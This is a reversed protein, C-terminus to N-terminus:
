RKELEQVKQEAPKIVQEKLTALLDGQDRYYYIPLVWHFRKMFDSFMSYERKGQLMIPQVPVALSPIIVQLEQPISSPDTLDAIVFRALHALTNVTETSSRSSPNEFDFLIPLYNSTRLGDRLVDLIAKRQPTFRGLILVAKTTITNVVERVSNNSLLLYIFQAIVLNDVTLTPEDFSTIVLNDQWAGELEVNWVSIGYISCQSLIANRLNTRVLVAGSLNAGTLDAGSLNTGNLDAGSLNAGLLITKSLDAERLNAGSLNARSLNARSLDKESLDVRNLNASNLNAQSLNAEKLNAGSLIAAELNAGFLLAGHLDSSRLDADHLDAYTLNSYSFNTGSLITAELNAGQLVAEELNAGELNAGQLVAEELNAGELNAFTLDANSLDTKSLNARSLDPHIDPHKKRWENWAKISQTILIQQNTLDNDLTQEKQAQLLHGPPNVEMKQTMGIAEGASESYIQTSNITKKSKMAEVIANGVKVWLEERQYGKMKAVPLSPPNIAQFRSLSEPLLCPRLIVPLIKLGEKEASSLLHPLENDRIFQSDLFDVSVLLVAVAASVLADKIELKWEAGPNIKTDVWVDIQKNREYSRLHPMFGELYKDDKHSYSIFVKTRNNAM